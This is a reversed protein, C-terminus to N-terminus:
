KGNQHSFRRRSRDPGGWIPRTTTGPHERTGLPYTPYRWASTCSVPYLPGCLASRCSFAFWSTFTAVRFRWQRLGIGHENAVIPPAYGRCLMGRSARKPAHVKVWKDCPTDISLLEKCSLTVRGLFSRLTGAALVRWEWAPGTPSRGSAWDWDSLTAALVPRSGSPGLGV